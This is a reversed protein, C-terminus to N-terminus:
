PWLSECDDSKTDGESENFNIIQDNGSGCNFSDEGPSGYLIDDGSGGTLEDNGSGGHLGDSGEGGSLQDDGGLGYMLNSDSDGNMNDDGETGNCPELVPGATGCSIVDAYVTPYYLLKFSSFQLYLICFLFIAMTSVKLRQM